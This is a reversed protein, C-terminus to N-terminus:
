SFLSAAMQEPAALGALALITPAINCLAGRSQILPPVATKSVIFLPVPNPTHSPNPIGTDPNTMM